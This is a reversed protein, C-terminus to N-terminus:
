VYPPIPGHSHDRDVRDGARWPPQRCAGRLRWPLPTARSLAVAANREAGRGLFLNIPPGCPARRRSGRRKTAGIGSSVRSRCFSSSRRCTIVPAADGPEVPM